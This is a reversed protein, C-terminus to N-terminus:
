KVSKTVVILIRRHSVGVTGDRAMGTATMHWTSSILSGPKWLIEAPNRPYDRIKIMPCYKVANM